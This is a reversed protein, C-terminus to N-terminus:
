EGQKAKKILEDFYGEVLAPDHIRKRGDYLSYLSEDALAEKLSESLIEAMKEQEEESSILDNRIEYLLNPFGHSDAHTNVTTGWLIRADYPENDGVVFGKERLSNMVAVPLRDDQVWLVGIEWPREQNYFQKTFSHVSIVAPVIERAKFGDIM